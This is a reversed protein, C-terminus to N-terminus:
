SFFLVVPLLCILGPLFQVIFVKKRMLSLSTRLFVRSLNAEVTIKLDNDRFIKCIDKKIRELEQPTKNFASLGDDRYLGINNGYKETLRSLIYCGVLECTEAGDFSGMTVDFRDNSSKKKWPVNESFLLSRKAHIIIDREHPSIPRHFRFCSCNGFCSNKGM